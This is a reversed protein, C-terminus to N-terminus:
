QILFDPMVIGAAAGDARMILQCFKDSMAKECENPYDVRSPENRGMHWWIANEEDASLDLGVKKLLEVSRKGHGKHKNEENVRLVDNRGFYYVDKKCVDHLLAAIIVSEKPYRKKFDKDKSMWMGYAVLYVEMSHKALGHKCNNHQKKSAPVTFFDCGTELWNIVNEIGPKHTSRLLECISNKYM